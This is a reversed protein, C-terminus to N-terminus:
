KKLKLDDLPTRNFGTEKKDIGLAQIERRGSLWGGSYSPSKLLRWGGRQISQPREVTQQENGNKLPSM